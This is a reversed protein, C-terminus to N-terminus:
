AWVESITPVPPSKEVLVAAAQLSESARAELLDAIEDILGEAIDKAFMISKERTKEMDIKVWKRQGIFHPSDAPGVDKALYYYGRESDNVMYRRPLLVYNPCNVEIFEAVVVVAEHLKKTARSNESGARELRKLATVADM